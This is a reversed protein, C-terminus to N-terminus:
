EKDYHLFIPMGSVKNGSIGIAMVMWEVSVLFKTGDELHVYINNEIGDFKLDQIPLDNTDNLVDFLRDIFENKEM